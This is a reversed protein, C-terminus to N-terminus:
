AHQDMELILADRLGGEFFYEKKRQCHHIIQHCHSLREYGLVDGFASQSVLVM